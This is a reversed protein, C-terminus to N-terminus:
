RYCGGYKMKGICIRELDTRSELASLQQNLRRFLRKKLVLFGEINSWFYLVNIGM